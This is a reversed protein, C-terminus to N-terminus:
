ERQAVYVDYRVTKGGFSMTPDPALLPADDARKVVVRKTAVSKAIEFLDAADADPGALLRLLEISKRSRASRKRKPPYMPDLYVADPRPRAAPLLSRADGQVIFLRNSIRKRCRPDLMARAFGDRLLAAVVPTREIATVHYGLSALLFADRGWGATSDVITQVDKGFAKAIPQRRSLDSASRKGALETFDVCFGRRHLCAPDRLELRDDTVALALNCRVGDGEALM